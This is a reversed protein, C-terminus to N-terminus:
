STNIKNKSIEFAVDLLNNTKLYQYIEQTNKEIFKKAKEILSSSFWVLTADSKDLIKDYRLVFIRKVPMTQSALFGYFAVQNGQAYVNSPIKGVKFEYIDGEDYCDLVGVLVFNNYDFEIKLQPIPNKLKLSNFFHPLKKEAIIKETILKDAIEGQIMDVTPDQKINFITEVAKNILGKAWLNLITFSLRLKM